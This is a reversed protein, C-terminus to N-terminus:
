DYGWQYVVGKKYFTKNMIMDMIEKKAYTDQVAVYKDYVQNVHSLEGEKKIRQINADAVTANGKPYIYSPCVWRCYRDDVM